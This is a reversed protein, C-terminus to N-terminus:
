DGQYDRDVDARRREQRQDQGGQHQDRRAKSGVTVKMQEVTVFRVPQLRLSAVVGFGAIVLGGPVAGRLARKRYGIDPLTGV